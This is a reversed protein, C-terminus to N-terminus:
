PNGGLVAICFLAGLAWGLGAYTMVLGEMSKSPLKTFHGVTFVVLMAFGAWAYM